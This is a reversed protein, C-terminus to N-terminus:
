LKEMNANFINNHTEPKKETEVENRLKQTFRFDEKFHKSTSNIDIIENEQKEIRINNWAKLEILRTNFVDVRDKQIKM